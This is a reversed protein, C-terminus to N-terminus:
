NEMESGPAMPHAMPGATESWMERMGLNEDGELSIEYLKDGVALHVVTRGEERMDVWRIAPGCIIVKGVKILGM